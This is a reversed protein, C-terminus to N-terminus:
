GDQLILFDTVLATVKGEADFGFFSPYAGDGYGSSFCIVNEAGSPDPKWELWSRTHKYTKEMEKIISDFYQDAEMAKVLDRSAATGMFCGTGADVGYGFFDDDDELEGADQEDLMAMEWRVTKAPSFDIRAYAVREDGGDLRAIALRVPFSGNPVPQSFPPSDPEVFPDSAAVRGEAIILDGAHLNLFRGSSNGNGASFASEVDSTSLQYPM